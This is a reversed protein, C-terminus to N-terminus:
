GGPLRPTVPTHGDDIMGGAVQTLEEHSIECIDSCLKPPAALDTEM